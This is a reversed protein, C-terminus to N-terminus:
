LTNKLKTLFKKINKEDRQYYTWAGIRKSRVLGVRQLAALYISVTSQSLGSKEQIISVCVGEIKADVLQNSVDFNEEPAKLWHLIDMRMSNDLTKLIENINM